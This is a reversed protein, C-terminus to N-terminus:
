VPVGNLQWLRPIAFRNFVEEISDLITGLAIAFLDTKSEVLSFSGHRDTGLMIFEALASM